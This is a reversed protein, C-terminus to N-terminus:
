FDSLRGPPNAKMEKLIELISSQLEAQKKQSGLESYVGGGGGIRQMSSVAINSSRGASASMQNELNYLEDQLRSQFSEAEREKQEAKSQAQSESDSIAKDFQIKILDKSLAKVRNQYEKKQAVESAAKKTDEIKRVRKEEDEQDKKKNELFKANKKRAKATDEMWDQEFQKNSKQLEELKKREKYEQFAPSKEPDWENPREGGRGIKWGFEDNMDRMIRYAKTANEALVIFAKTIAGIDKGFEKFDTDRLLLVLDQMVPLLGNGVETKMEAFQALLTKQSNALGDQTDKFDGHQMATQELIVEYAALAKTSADLTAKGDSLGMEFAKAKLTSERFSVGLRSIPESEGRMAALLATITEENTANNFSGMDAALDVLRESMKAATQEGIGVARFITGFGGAAELAEVRAIGLNNATNKSWKEIQRASDGFVKESKSIEESLSSAAQVSDNLLQPVSRLAGSLGDFLRHGIREKFGKAISGAIKKTKKEFSKLEREAKRSDAGVSVNFGAM